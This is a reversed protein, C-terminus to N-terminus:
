SLDGVRPYDGSLPGFNVSGAGHPGGRLRGGGRCAVASGTTPTGLGSSGGVAIGPGSRRRGAANRLRRRFPGAPTVGGARFGRLRARSVECLGTRM